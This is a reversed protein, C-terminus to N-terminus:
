KRRSGLVSQSQTQQMQLNLKAYIMVTHIESSARTRKGIGLVSAVRDSLAVRVHLSGGFWCSGEAAWWRDPQGALRGGAFRSIAVGVGRLPALKM